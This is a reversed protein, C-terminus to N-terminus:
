PEDVHRVADAGRGSVQGVEEAAYLTYRQMAVQCMETERTCQDFKRVSFVESSEGQTEAKRAVTM